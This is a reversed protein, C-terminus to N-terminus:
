VHARRDPKTPLYIWLQRQESEPGPFAIEAFSVGPELARLPPLPPLAEAALAPRSGPAAGPRLARLAAVAIGIIVLVVVGCGLFFRAIPKM